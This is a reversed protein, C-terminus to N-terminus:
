GTWTRQRRFHEFRTVVYRQIVRTSCVERLILKDKTFGGESSAPGNRPDAVTLHRFSAFTPVPWVTRYWTTLQRGPVANLSSPCSSIPMFILRPILDRLPRHDFVSGGFSGWPSRNLIWLGRQLTKWSLYSRLIRFAGSLNALLGYLQTKLDTFIEALWLHNM